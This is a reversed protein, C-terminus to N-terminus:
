RGNDQGYIKEKHSFVKDSSFGVRWRYIIFYSSYDPNIDNGISDLFLHQALGLSAGFLLRSKTLFVLLAVVFLLEYSHFILTIIKLRYKECTEIFHKVDLSGPHQRWYDIVHDLDLFIGVFFSSAAITPSKTIFYVGSSFVTSAILHNTIRM